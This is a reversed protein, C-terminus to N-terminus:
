AVFYHCLNYVLVKGKDNGIATFYSNPSFDVSSVTSLPTKLTPWNQFVTMSDLHVQSLLMSSCLLAVSAFQAGNKSSREQIQVLNGVDSVLESETLAFVKFEYIDCLFSHIIALISLYHYM